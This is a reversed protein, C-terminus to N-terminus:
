SAAGTNTRNWSPSQRSDRSTYSPHFAPLHIMAKIEGPFTHTPLSNAGVCVKGARSHM